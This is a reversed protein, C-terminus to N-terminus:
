PSSPEDFYSPICVPRLPNYLDLHVCMIKKLETGLGYSKTIVTNKM